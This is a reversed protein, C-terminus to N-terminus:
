FSSPLLLLSQRQILRLSRQRFVQMLLWVRKLIVSLILERNLSLFLLSLGM